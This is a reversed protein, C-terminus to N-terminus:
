KWETKIRAFLKLDVIKPDHTTKPLEYWDIVHELMPEDVDDLPMSRGFDCLTANIITKKKGEGKKGVGREEVKVLINGSHLDMHAYGLQHLAQLQASIKDRVLCPVSKRSSREMYRRLSTDWLETVIVGIRKSDVNLKWSKFFTPGIGAVTSFLESHKVENSFEERGDVETIDVMKFAFITEETEKSARKSGKRAHFVRGYAGTGIRKIIQYGRLQRNSILSGGRKFPNRLPKAESKGRAMRTTAIHSLEM